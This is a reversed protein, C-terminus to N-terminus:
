KTVTGSYLNIVTKLCKAALPPRARHYRSAATMNACMAPNAIRWGLTVSRQDICVAM